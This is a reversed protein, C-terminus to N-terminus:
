VGLCDILGFWLTAVKGLWSTEGVAESVQQWFAVGMFGSDYLWEATPLSPLRSLGLM